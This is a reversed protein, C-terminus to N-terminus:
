GTAPPHGPGPVGARAAARLAAPDPKGSPLLPIRPILVLARPAAPASLAAKVHRRLGALTPPAAPDAPVVLATVREGWEPDPEGIVAAEAVGPCNELAAAVATPSVKEGGSNIMEDCRGHVTLRGDPAVAGADSTVFWGGDMAAATLSPEGRYGSFLVPGAIAVRGDQGARVRVGELPVGEYVCGGCTESMGYTTVVRAGAARASALMSAPAAAGGLLITRFAGVDAGAALLRRLQTPVLSVHACGWGALPRAPDLRGATVPTTGSVLSRVLVGLGGIHSTPLVCLWREGPRAGLRALSARASHRLAAASLQVGKPRGTSGSTAIVVATEPPVEGPRVRHSPATGAQGGAPDLRQTGDGTELAAPAFWALLEAVKAPPLAPDVPLIAPGTGDLAAALLALLRGGDGGPPLLVAHLPRGAM